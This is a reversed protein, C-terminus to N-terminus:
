AAALHRHRRDDRGHPRPMTRRRRDGARARRERDRDRGQRPQCRAPRRPDGRGLGEPVRGPRRAPREECPRRRLRRRHRDGRGDGEHRALASRRAAHRHRLRRADLRPGRRLARRASRAGLLERAHALGDRLARHHRRHRPRHFSVDRGYAPQARRAQGRDFPRRRPQAPYARPHQRRRPEAREQADAPGLDATSAIMLPLAANKAGSIPITGELRKGGIIKIRDM